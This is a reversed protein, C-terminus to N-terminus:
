PIPVLEELWKKFGIDVKVSKGNFLGNDTLNDLYLSMVRAGNKDFGILACRIDLAPSDNQNRISKIGVSLTNYKKWARLNRLSVMWDYNREILDPTISSRFLSEKDIYFFDMMDVDQMVMSTAIEPHSISNEALSQQTVLVVIGFSYFIIARLLSM